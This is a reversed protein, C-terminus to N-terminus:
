DYNSKEEIKERSERHSQPAPEAGRHFV